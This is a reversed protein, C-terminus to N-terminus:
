DGLIHQRVGSVTCILGFALMGEGLIQVWFMGSM